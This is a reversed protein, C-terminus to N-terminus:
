FWCQFYPFDHHTKLPFHDDENWFDHNSKNTGTRVKITKGSYYLGRLSEPKRNAKTSLSQGFNGLSHSDRVQWRVRKITEEKIKKGWSKIRNVNFTGVLIFTLGGASPPIIRLIFFSCM